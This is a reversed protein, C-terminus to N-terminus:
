KLSIGTILAMHDSGPVEFIEHYNIALNKSIFCYDIRSVDIPVTQPKWTYQYPNDSAIIADELGGDTFISMRDDTPFSNFDGAIILNDNIIGSGANINLKGSSMLPAIEEFVEDRSNESFYFPAPIHIGLISISATDITIRLTPMHYENEVPHQMEHIGLDGEILSAIIMSRSTSEEITQIFKYGKERFVTSDVNKSFSAEVLIYVDAEKKLLSKTIDTGSNKNTFLINANVITLQCNKNIDVTSCNLFLFIATSIFLKYM